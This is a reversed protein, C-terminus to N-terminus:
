RPLTSRDILLGSEEMLCVYQALPPLGAAARRSELGALSETPAFVLYGDNRITFQTGYRQPEGGNTRVRDELMALTQPSLNGPPLARAMRLVPAQLAANHQVILMAADSGAAGVMSRTPLGFRDLIGALEVARASDALSLRQVYASDTLRTALSERDAQDSAELGLLVQRLSDNSWIGTERSWARNVQAWAATSDLPPCPAGDPKGRCSLTLLIPAMVLLRGRHM